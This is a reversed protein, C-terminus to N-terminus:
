LHSTRLIASGFSNPFSSFAERGRTELPLFRGISVGEGRRAPVRLGTKSGMRIKWVTEGSVRTFLPFIAVVFLAAIPYLVSTTSM